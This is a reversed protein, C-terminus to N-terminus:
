GINEEGRGEGGEGRDGVEKRRQGRARLTWARFRAFTQLDIKGVRTYM